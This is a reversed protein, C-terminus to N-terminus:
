LTQQTQMGRTRTHMHTHTCSFRQIGDWKLGVMGNRLGRSDVGVRFGLGTHKPRTITYTHIYIHWGELQM